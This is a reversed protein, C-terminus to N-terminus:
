EVSLKYLRWRWGWGRGRCATPTGTVNAATAVCAWLQVFLPLLLCQLKLFVDQLELPLELGDRELRLVQLVLVPTRTSQNFVVGKYPIIVVWQRNEDHESCGTETGTGAELAIQGCM